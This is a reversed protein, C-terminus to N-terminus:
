ALMGLAQAVPCSLVHPHTIPSEPRAGCPCGMEIQKILRLLEAREQQWQEALRKDEAVVQEIVGRLGDREQTLRDQYALLSQERKLALSDREAREQQWQQREAKLELYAQHRYQCFDLLEETSDQEPDRGNFTELPRGYAAIGSETRQGLWESFAEKLSPAVPERGPTPMSQPKSM